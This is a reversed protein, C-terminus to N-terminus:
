LAEAHVGANMSSPINEKQENQRIIRVLAGLLARGGQM